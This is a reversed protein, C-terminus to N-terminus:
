NRPQDTCPAAARVYASRQGPDFDIARGGQPTYACLEARRNTQQRLVRPLVVLGCANPIPASLWIKRAKELGPDIRWLSGHAGSVAFFAEQESSYALGSFGVDKNTDSDLLLPHVSVALTAPDVRWLTPVVNSTIVAEGKPGLALGPLCGYPADVWLWDPLPVVIKESRMVDYISVGDRTLLWVRNRATDVGYRMSPPPSEPVFRVADPMRQPAAGLDCGGIPVTLAALFLASVIGNSM